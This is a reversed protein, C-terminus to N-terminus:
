TMQGITEWLNPKSTADRHYLKVHEETGQREWVSTSLDSHQDVPVIQLSWPYKMPLTTKTWRFAYLTQHDHRYTINTAM